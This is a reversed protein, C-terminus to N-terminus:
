KRKLYRYAKSMKKRNHPLSLHCKHCYTILKGQNAKDYSYSKISEMETELHHVDFRRQGSVWVKKCKQCTYNDRIRVKERIFDLGSQPGTYKRIKPMKKLRYALIDVIQGTYFVRAFKEESTM